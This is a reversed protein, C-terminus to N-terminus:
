GTSILFHMQIGKLLNLDFFNNVLNCIRTMQVHDIGDLIYCDSTQVFGFSEYFKKIYLQAEIRIPLHKYIRETYFLARRFLEKGLGIRRFNASLVIRGISSFGEFSVSPPVIRACAILADNKWCMLHSCYLDNNDLDQYACNQEVVFIEIRLRAIAYLERPSLNDFQKLSWKLDLDKIEKPVSSEDIDNLDSSM